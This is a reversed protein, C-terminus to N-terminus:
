TEGKQGQGNTFTCYESAIWSRLEETHQQSRLFGSSFVCSQNLRIYVRGCM